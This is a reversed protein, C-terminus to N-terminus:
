AREKCPLCPATCTRWASWMCCDVVSRCLSVRSFYIPSKDFVRPTFWVRFLPQKFELMLLPYLVLLTFVMVIHGRVQTGARMGQATVCRLVAGGHESSEGRCVTGSDSVDTTQHIMLAEDPCLQILCDGDKDNNDKSYGV